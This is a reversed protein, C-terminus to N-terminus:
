IQSAKKLKGRHHRIPLFDRGINGINVLSLFPTVLHGFSSVGTALHYFYLKYRNIYTSTAIYAVDARDTYLGAM